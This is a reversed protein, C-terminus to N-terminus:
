GEANGFFDTHLKFVEGRLALLTAVEEVDSEQLARVHGASSVFQVCGMM